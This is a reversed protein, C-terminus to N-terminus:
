SNEAVEQSLVLLDPRLRKLLADLRAYGEVATALNGSHGMSELVFAAEVVDEAGFNAVSGKLTHAAREVAKANGAQIAAHIEGLVKPYDDLFLVAVEQLLQEDGGVRELAVARNLM